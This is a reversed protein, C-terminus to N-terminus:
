QLRLQMLTDPVEGVIVTQALLVQHNVEIQKTVLPIVVQVNAKVDLMIKHLTQNIGAEELDNIMDVTVTGVPIIGIRLRPGINAMINSGLVQGMPIRIKEDKLEKLRERIHDTTRAAVRSIEITNPQILVPRSQSDKHIFMLDQYRVKQVIETEVADTIAEVALIKAKAEAIALISPKLNREFIMFLIIFILFFFVFVIKWSIVCNRARGWRRM